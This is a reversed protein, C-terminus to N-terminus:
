TTEKLEWYQRAKLLLLTKKEVSYFDDDHNKTLKGLPRGTCTDLVHIAEHVILVDDLAIEYEPHDINIIAMPSTKWFGRCGFLGDPNATRCMWKVEKARAHYARIRQIQASCMPALSRQFHEQYADLTAEALRKDPRWAKITDGKKFCSALSLLLFIVPYM